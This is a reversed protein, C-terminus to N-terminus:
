QIPLSEITANTDKGYYKIDTSETIMSQAALSTDEYKYVVNGNKDINSYNLVVASGEIDNVM